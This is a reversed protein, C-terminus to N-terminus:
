APSVMNSIKHAFFAPTGRIGPLAGLKGSMTSITDASADIAICNKTHHALLWSTWFAVTVWAPLHQTPWRSMIGDAKKQRLFGELLSASGATTGIIWSTGGYWLSGNVWQWRRWIMGDMYSNKRLDRGCAKADPTIMADAERATWTKRKSYGSRWTKELLLAAYMRKRGYTDNCEDEELMELM